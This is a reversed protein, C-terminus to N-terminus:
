GILKNPDSGIRVVVQYDTSCISLVNDDKIHHSSSEQRM